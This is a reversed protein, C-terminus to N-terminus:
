KRNERDMEKRKVENVTNNLREEISKCKSFSSPEEQSSFVFRLINKEGVVSRFIYEESM